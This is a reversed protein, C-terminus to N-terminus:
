HVPFEEPRDVPRAVLLAVGNDPQLDAATKEDSYHASGLQFAGESGRAFCLQRIFSM